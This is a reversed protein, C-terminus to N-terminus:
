ILQRQELFPSVFSAETQITEMGRFPVHQLYLKLVPPIVYDLGLM